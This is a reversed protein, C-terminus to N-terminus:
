KVKVFNSKIGNVNDNLRTLVKNLVVNSNTAIPGLVPDPLPAGGPYIQASQMAQTLNALEQVVQKLLEVTDDGKLVPQTADKSGLKIDNGALYVQKSEINISENSSLGVSKQGSILVSDSKANLVIRDSSLIVQPSNFSSPVTPKTTYSIFNENALSFPIKQTSTLYISSLDNRIDETIPIWGESSSNKPQGNRLITIPDGNDGSTSWNNAYKSKSKATNGLRISNGFRGEYLIDGAFPMLPHINPKEVFTNQSPNVPSNLNIETSGDTVKRVMGGEVQQYDLKQSPPLLLESPNPSANHHPHNWLDVINVYYYQYKYTNTGLTPIPLYFLVVLENVLPYCSSQPYFPKAFKEPGSNDSTVIEFKITGISSLEGQSVYLPHNEDLIIDKVRGVIYPNSKKSKNGSNGGPSLNQVLGSLGSKNIM